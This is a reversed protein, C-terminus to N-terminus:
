FAAKTQSPTANRLRLKLNKRYGYTLFTVKPKTYITYYLIELGRGDCM